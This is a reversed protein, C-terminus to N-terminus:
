VVSKRDPFAVRTNLGDRFRAMPGGDRAEIFQVVLKKM